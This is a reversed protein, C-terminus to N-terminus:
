VNDLKNKKKKNKKYAHLNQTNITNKAKYVKFFNYLWTSWDKITDPKHAMTLFGKCWTM